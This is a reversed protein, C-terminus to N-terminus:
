AGLGAFLGIASLFAAVASTIAGWRNLNSQENVRRSLLSIGDDGIDALAGKLVPVTIRSARLWFFASIAWLVISGINAFLQVMKM